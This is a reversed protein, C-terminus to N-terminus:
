PAVDKRKATLKYQIRKTISRCCYYLIALVFFSLSVTFM